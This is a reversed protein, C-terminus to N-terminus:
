GVAGGVAWASVARARTAQDGFAERVLALSAPLVVATGAGPVLRVAM